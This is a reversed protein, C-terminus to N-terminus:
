NGLCFDLHDNIMQELVLQDCVPCPVKVPEQEKIADPEQEKIVDPEQEKIVDPESNVPKFYKLINGLPTTAPRKRPKKASDPGHTKSLCPPTDHQAKSGSATDNKTIDSSSKRASKTKSVSSEMIVEPVNEKKTKKNIGVSAVNSKAMVGPFGSKLPSPRTVAANLELAEDVTLGDTDDPVTPLFKPDGKTKKMLDNIRDPWLNRDATADLMTRFRSRIRTCAVSPIQEDPIGDSSRFENLWRKWWNVSKGMIFAARGLYPMDDYPRDVSGEKNENVDFGSVISRGEHAEWLFTYEEKGLVLREQKGVRVKSNKFNRWRREISYMSKSAPSPDGGAELRATVNISFEESVPWNADIRNLWSIREPITRGAGLGDDTARFRIRDVSFRNIGDLDPGGCIYLRNGCFFCVPTASEVMTFLKVTELATYTPVGKCFGYVIVTAVIKMADSQSMDQRRVAAWIKLFQIPTQRRVAQTLVTCHICTSHFLVPTTISCAEIYANEENLAEFCINCDKAPPPLILGAAVRRKLEGVIDDPPLKLDKVLKDMAINRYHKHCHESCYLMSRFTLFPVAAATRRTMINATTWTLNVNCDTSTCQHGLRSRIVFKAEVIKKWAIQHHYKFPIEGSSIPIAPKGNIMVNSHDAGLESGSPFTVEQTDVGTYLSNGECTRNRVIHVVCVLYTDPKGDILFIGRPLGKIARLERQDYEVHLSLGDLTAKSSKGKQDVTPDVSPVFSLDADEEEGDNNHSIEEILM